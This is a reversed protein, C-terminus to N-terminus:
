NSKESSARYLKRYRFWGHVCSNTLFLMKSAALSLKLLHKQQQQFLRRCPQCPCTSTTVLTPSSKNSDTDAHSALKLQRKWVGAPYVLDLFFDSVPILYMILDKNKESANRFGREYIDVRFWPNPTMSCEEPCTLYIVNVENIVWPHGVINFSTYVTSSSGNTHTYINIYYLDKWQSLSSFHQPALMQEHFVSLAGKKRIQYDSATDTSINELM